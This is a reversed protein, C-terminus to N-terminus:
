DKSHSYWYRDSDKLRLDGTTPRSTSSSEGQYRKDSARYIKNYEYALQRAREKQDDPVSAASTKHRNLLGRDEASLGELWARAAQPTGGLLGHATLQIKSGPANQYDRSKLALLSNYPPNQSTSPRHAADDIQTQMSKPLSRAGPSRTDPTLHQIQGTNAKIPSKEISDMTYGTSSIHNLM